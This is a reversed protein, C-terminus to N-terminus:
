PFRTQEDFWRRLTSQDAPMVALLPEFETWARDKSGTRILCTVRLIRIEDSLPNLRLAAASAEEAEPWRGQGALLQALQSHYQSNWPDVAIARRWYAIAADKQQLATALAAAYTLTLEREPAKALATELAALGESKRNLLWLIFGKAEWAAVDEPVAQLREELLPLATPGLQRALGPHDRVVETLALSLDRAAEGNRVAILDQHFHVLPVEGLSLGHPSEESRSPNDTRRRIRHDTAATHAIRSGARPMHCAACSDAPNEARRAAPPLACGQEQHCGLCRDRYYAVKEEPEPSVHPNHCSICGMRGNSRQFCRSQYMQETHDAVARDPNLKPSRVFVSVIEHLPMGPRYDFLQRDWRVIRSEGRLHCQQCVGERVAPPLDRPNVITDDVGEVVDGRRRLEVHLAGPGHCRECGIAQGRFIPPRYRNLTQAVADVQNCHCFLCELKAPREFHEVIAFGPTLDWVGPQSYWSLPSQFLYGDRDILYTRGRTGSGIAYHIEAAFEMVVQGQPNRRMEKHTMGFGEGQGRVQAAPTPLPLPFREVLFQYGLKEFPNHAHSDYRELPAAQSVPAFSRGMPHRRYTEVKDRHCQACVETGVYNVQPRLNRYATTPTLRPDPRRSPAASDGPWRKWVLFLVLLGLLGGLLIQLRKQRATRIRDEASRSEEM